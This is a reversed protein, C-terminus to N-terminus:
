MIIKAYQCNVMSFSCKVMFFCSISRLDMERPMFALGM